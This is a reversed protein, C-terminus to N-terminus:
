SLLIQLTYITRRFIEGILEADYPSSTVHRIIADYHRFPPWRPGGDQIEPNLFFVEFLRGFNAWFNNFRMLVAYLARYDRPHYNIM